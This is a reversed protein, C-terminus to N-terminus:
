QKKRKEHNKWRKASWGSEGRNYGCGCSSLYVGCDLCHYEQGYCYPTECYLGVFYNESLNEHQCDEAKDWFSKSM